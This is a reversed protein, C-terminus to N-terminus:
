PNLSSLSTPVTRVLRGGDNKKMHTKRLTKQFQVRHDCAVETLVGPITLHTDGIDDPPPVHDGRPNQSCTPHLPERSPRQCRSDITGRAHLAVVLTRSDVVEFTLFAGNGLHHDMVFKSWGGGVSVASVGTHVDSKRHIQLPWEKEFDLSTVLACQEFLPWGTEEIFTAPIEQSQWLWTECLLSCVMASIVDVQVGPGQVCFWFRSGLCQVYFVFASLTHRGPVHEFTALASHTRLLVGGSPEARGSSRAGVMSGGHNGVSFGAESSLGGELVGCCSRGRRRGVEVDVQVPVLHWGIVGAESYLTASHRSSQSPLPFM